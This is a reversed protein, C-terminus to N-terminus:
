VQKKKRGPSKIPTTIMTEALMRVVGLVKERNKQDPIANYLRLLELAERKEVTTEHQFLSAEEALGRINAKTDNAAGEFFYSVPVGLFTGLDYLRSAGIRNTGREYKQVQQFTLGVSAGVQEQSLGLLTRRLRLRQGVIIDTPNPSGDKLRSRNKKKPSAPM